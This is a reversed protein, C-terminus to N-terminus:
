RVVHPPSRCIRKGAIDSPKRNHMPPFRRNAVGLEQDIFEEANATSSGSVHNDAHVPSVVRDNYNAAQPDASDVTAGLRDAISSHISSDAYPESM